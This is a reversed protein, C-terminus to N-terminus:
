EHKKKPFNLVLYIFPILSYSIVTAFAAGIVGYKPIFIINLTINLFATFLPILTITYLKNRIFLDQYIIFSIFSGFLSFIYVSLIPVAKVFTGGYIISVLLKGTLMIFISIVLSSITLVGILLILRKKYEHSDDKSHIFAPFLAGMLINPIIYWIETLRVAASYLGVASVDLYYRIMIQDIRAYIEYFAGYLTLPLALYLLSFVKRKSISFRITRKKIKKIQYLYLFGSIINEIVLILIFGTLSNFFYVMGIKLINSILLTTIQAITVYKSESDKLFDYSLLLLPQTLFSFSFLIVLKKIYVSENTFVVFIIVILFALLGTMTRLLLASGLIEERNHKETTLEKYVVNDIGLGAIIGFLGVISMTYTLAGFSTPGLIRAIIITTILSFFMTTVRAFTIWKINKTYRVIGEKRFHRIFIKNLFFTM